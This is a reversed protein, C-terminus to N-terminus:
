LFMVLLYFVRLVMLMFCCLGWCVWLVFAVEVIGFWFWLFLFLVVLLMRILIGGGVWVVGVFLGVFVRVWDLLEGGFLSWGCVGLMWLLGFVVFVFVSFGSVWFVGLFLCVFVYVFFCVCCFFFFRSV